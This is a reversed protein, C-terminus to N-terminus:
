RAALALLSLAVFYIAGVGAIAVVWTKLLREVSSSPADGPSAKQRAAASGTGM